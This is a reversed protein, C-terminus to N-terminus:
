WYVWDGWLRFRQQVQQATRWEGHGDIFVINEGKLLNHNQTAPATSSQYMGLWQSDSPDFGDVVAAQEAASWVYIAGVGDSPTGYGTITSNLFRINPVVPRYNGSQPYATGWTPIGYYNFSTAASNGTAALIHYTSCYTGTAGYNGSLPWTETFVRDAGPCILIKTVPVSRPMWSTGTYDWSATGSNDRIFANMTTTHVPPFWGNNDDSYMMLGLHIQRMNGLCVTKKGSERAKQLSPLLMAALVAIIAVVVLLEILTFSHRHRLDSM